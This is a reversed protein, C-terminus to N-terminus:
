NGKLDIFCKEKNAIREQLACVIVERNETFERCLEEYEEAEIPKGYLWVHEVDLDRLPCEASMLPQRDCTDQCHHVEPGNPTCECPRWIISPMFPGRSWMRMKFVGVEPKDIQKTM